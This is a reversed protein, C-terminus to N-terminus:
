TPPRWRRPTPRAWPRVASTATWRRGGSPCRARGRRRCRSSRSPRSSRPARSRSSRPRRAPPAAIRKLRALDRKAGGIGAINTREHGLLFKAYTWGENEKGVLNEVPVKVDELWVENVEQTGDLLTIPRVTVGPTKMDVLLFSIGAQPKAAPDTRVLCFIWSAHQALTIWTKQGNVLYHDGSREARTKLSALDSGAGPESYGQAWWDEGSLIRPLFRAQQAANGFRQIVPGVMKLGFPLLRPAGAAACEEEFIYQRVPDWGTGGFEKPWSPGGWGREHLIRQWRRTDGATVRLGELMKRRIEAPLSKALFVRVEERFELEEATFRLDM